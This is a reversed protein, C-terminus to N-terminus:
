KCRFCYCNFFILKDDKFYQYVKVGQAIGNLINIRQYRVLPCIYLIICPYSVNFILSKEFWTLNFYNWTLHNAYKGFFYKIKKNKKESKTKLYEKFSNWVVWCNKIIWFKNM